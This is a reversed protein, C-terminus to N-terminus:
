PTLVHILLPEIHPEQPEQRAVGRCMCLPTAGGPPLGGVLAQRGATRGVASGVQKRRGRGERVAAM